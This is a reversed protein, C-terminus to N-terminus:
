RRRAEADRRAAEAYAAENYSNVAIIEYMDLADELSYVSQLERLSAYRRSILAAMIHTM